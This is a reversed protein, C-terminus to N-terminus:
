HPAVGNIRSSDQVSRAADLPTWCGSRIVPMGMSDSRQGTKDSGGSRVTFRATPMPASAAPDPHLVPMPCQLGAGSALAVPAPWPSTKGTDSSQRQSEASASWTPLEPPRTAAVGGGVAALIAPILGLVSRMRRNWTPSPSLSDNATCVGGGLSARYYPETARGQEATGSRSM